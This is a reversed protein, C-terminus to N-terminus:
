IKAEFVRDFIADVHRTFFNIDFLETLEEATLFRAIKQDNKLETLFDAAEEWVRMANKQVLRYGEERSCGKETLALLVRQSYFLGRMLNINKEMNKPYVVLKEIVNSLRYVMFDLTVTADPGIVREVSSHSIDREHWLAVNELASLAYGRLLRSLGTLNETLVPNRKHPMASSGKQGASFFEEVEYVETRQLHRIETAIQEITSGVVALTSFFHAHRDRQIVQTSIPDAKLGLKECVMEEIRPDLHVFNGMAGSIKGVAIQDRAEILRKKNRKMEEYWLAVKLGFTIPEGHIGHSRGMMPTEKFEYARMRLISLLNDIGELIIDASQKLQLGLCTDLVDSSTMGKHMYRAEDGVYEAVSTLFAIVDHKLEKELLDIREVNFSAKQRVKKVVDKPIYDFHAMAELAAVEIDLWIQYRNQPEWIKTLEQRSYRPIM